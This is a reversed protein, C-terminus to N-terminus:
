KENSRTWTTHSGTCRDRWHQRGELYDHIVNALNITSKPRKLDVHDAVDPSYVSLVRDLLFDRKLEEVTSCKRALRDLETDVREM